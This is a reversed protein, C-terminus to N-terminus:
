CFISVKNLQYCTAMTSPDVVADSANACFIAIGMCVDKLTIHLSTCLPCHFLVDPKKVKPMFLDMIDKLLQSIRDVLEKREEGDKTDNGVVTITLQISQKEECRSIYYKQYAGM